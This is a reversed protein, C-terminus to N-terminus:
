WPRPQRLRELIASERQASAYRSLQECHARHAAAAAKRITRLEAQREAWGVLAQGMSLTLREPQLYQPVASM